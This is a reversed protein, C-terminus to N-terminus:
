FLHLLSEIVLVSRSLLKLLVAIVKKRDLHLGFLAEFMVNTIELALHGQYIVAIVVYSGNHEDTM